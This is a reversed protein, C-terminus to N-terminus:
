GNSTTGEENIFEFQEVQGIGKSRELAKRLVHFEQNSMSLDGCSGLTGRAPGAFVKIHTHGGLIQFYIRFRIM